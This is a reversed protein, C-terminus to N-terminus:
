LIIKGLILSFNLNLLFVGGGGGGGRLSLYAVRVAGVGKRKKEM